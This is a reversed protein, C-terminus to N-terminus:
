WEVKVGWIECVQAVRWSNRKCQAFYQKWIHSSRREKYGPILECVSIYYFGNVKPKGEPFVICYYTNSPVHKYDGARPDIIEQMDM